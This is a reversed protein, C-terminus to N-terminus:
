MKSILVCVCVCVCVSMCVCVCVYVYVVLCVCVCSSMYSLSVLWYCYFYCHHGYFRYPLAISATYYILGKWAVAWLRWAWFFSSVSSNSLGSPGGFELIYIYPGFFSIWRSVEGTRSFSIGCFKTLVSTRHTSIWWCVKTWNVEGSAGKKLM